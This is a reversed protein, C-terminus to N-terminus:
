SEREGRPRVKVQNDYVDTVVVPTDPEVVGSEALADIRRGEIKVVGVPRLATVTLGEAGILRRLEDLKQMRAREAAEMGEPEGDAPQGVDGGLVMRRALPSNIWVKFVFALLIPTLIIYALLAAVGFTPDHRFFAVISGIAALGCLLGLMGGSPVVLELCLLAVAAGALIFGWTLFTSDPAAAAQALPLIM